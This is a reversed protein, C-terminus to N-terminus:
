VWLDVDDFLPVTEFAALDFEGSNSCGEDGFRRKAACNVRIKM